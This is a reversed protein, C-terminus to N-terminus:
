NNSYIKYAEMVHLKKTSDRRLDLQFQQPFERYRSEETLNKEAHLISCREKWMKTGYDIL